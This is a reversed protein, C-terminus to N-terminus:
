MASARESTIESMMLNTARWNSPGSAPRRDFALGIRRRGACWRYDGPARRGQRDRGCVVPGARGSARGRTRMIGKASAMASPFSRGESARLPPDINGSRKRAKTRAPNTPKMAEALAAEDDALRAALAVPERAALGGALVERAAARQAEDWSAVVKPQVGLLDRLALDDPDIREDAAGCAAILLCVVATTWSPGQRM